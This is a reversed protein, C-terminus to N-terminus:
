RHVRGRAPAQLCQIAIAEQKFAGLRGDLHVHQNGFVTDAQGNEIFCFGGRM